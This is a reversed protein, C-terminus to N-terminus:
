ENNINNIVHIGDNNTDEYITFVAGQVAEGTVSDFKYVVVKEAYPTQPVTVSVKSASDVIVPILDAAKYYGNPAIMEELLYAGSGAETVTIVGDLDADNIEVYSDAETGDLQGNANKDEYIRFKIPSGSYMSITNGSWEDQKEIIIQTNILNIATIGVNEGIIDVLAPDLSSATEEADTSYIVYDDGTEYSFLSILFSRIRSQFLRKDARRKQM